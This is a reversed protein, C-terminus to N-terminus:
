YTGMSLFLPATLLSTQSPQHSRRAFEKKQGVLSIFM